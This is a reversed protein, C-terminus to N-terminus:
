ESLSDTPRNSMTLLEKVRAEVELGEGNLKMRQGDWKAVRETGAWVEGKNKMAVVDERGPSKEM